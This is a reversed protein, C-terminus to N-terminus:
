MMRTTPFLGKESTSKTKGIHPHGPSYKREFNSMKMPARSRLRRVIRPDGFALIALAENINALKGQGTKRPLTFPFIHCSKRSLHGQEFVPM